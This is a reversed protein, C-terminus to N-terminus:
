DDPLLAAALDRRQAARLASRPLPRGRGAARRLEVDHDMEGPIWIRVPEGALPDVVVGARERALEGARLGAVAGTSLSGLDNVVPCRATTRPRVHRCCM